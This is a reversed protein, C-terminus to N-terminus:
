KALERYANAHFPEMERHAEMAEDVSAYRVGSRPPAAPMIEIASGDVLNLERVAQPSLVFKFETEGVKHVNVLM